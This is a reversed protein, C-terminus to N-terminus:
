NKKDAKVLCVEGCIFCNIKFDFGTVVSRSTRKPTSSEVSAESSSKRKLHRQIKEKSTYNSYCLPHYIQDEDNIDKHLSDDRQKSANIVTQKRISTLAASAYPNEIKCTELVERFICQNSM